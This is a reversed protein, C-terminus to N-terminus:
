LLKMPEMGDPNAFSKVRWFKNSKNTKILEYNLVLKKKLFYITLLFCISQFQERLIKEFEIQEKTHNCEREWEGRKKKLDLM